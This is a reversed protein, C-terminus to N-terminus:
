KNSIKFPDQGYYYSGFPDNKPAALLKPVYQTKSWVLGRKAAVGDIEALSDVQIKGTIAKLATQTETGFDGDAGFKPLNSTGIALQLRQVLAGKSGKKLPFDSAPTTGGSSTGGGSSTDINGESDMVSPTKKLSRIIYYIGVIGLAIPLWYKKGKAM